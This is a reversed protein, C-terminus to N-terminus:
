RRKRSKTEEVVYPAYGFKTIIENLQDGGESKFYVPSPLTPPAPRAAASHDKGKAAQM